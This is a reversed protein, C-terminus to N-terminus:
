KAWRYLGRVLGPCGGCRRCGAYLSLDGCQEVSFRLRRLAEAATPPGRHVQFPGREGLPGVAGERAGSEHVAISGLLRAGGETADTSAVDAAIRSLEGLRRANTPSPKLALLFLELM